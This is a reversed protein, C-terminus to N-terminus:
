LLVESVLEGNKYVEKKARRGSESWFIQDGQKKDNKCSVTCQLQGSEYYWRWEGTKKDDEL